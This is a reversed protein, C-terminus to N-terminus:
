TSRTAAARPISAARTRLRTSCLTSCGRSPKMPSGRTLRNSRLRRSSAISALRVLHVFLMARIWFGEQACSRLFATAAQLDKEAGRRPHALCPLHQGFSPLPALCADIDDDAHHLGMAPALGFRQDMAMLDDGAAGDVMLAVAQALHVDVRDQRAVGLQRQDVLQRVAIRRATAVGFAILIDLFQQGGADVDIRRDVDLM